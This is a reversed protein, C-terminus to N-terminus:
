DGLVGAALGAAIAIITVGLIMAGYPRARAPLLGLLWASSDRFRRRAGIMWLGLAFMLGILTWEWLRM